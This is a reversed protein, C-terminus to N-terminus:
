PRRRLLLLGGVSLLAAGALGVAILFQPPAAVEPGDGYGDGGPKQAPEPQGVASQETAKLKGDKIEVRYRTVITDRPDNAALSRVPHALRESKLVGEAKGSFWEEKPPADPKELLTKPVAFLFIGGSQGYALPNFGSIDVEGKDNPKVTSNGAQGRDLDRPWVYFAYNPHDALNEFRAAHRVWKTGPALIDAAAPTVLVTLAFLSLSKRM